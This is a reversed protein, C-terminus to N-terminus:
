VCTLRLIQGQFANAPNDPSEAYRLLRECRLLNYETCPRARHTLFECEVCTGGLQDPSPQDDFYFVRYPLAIEERKGPLDKCAKCLVNAGSHYVIKLKTHARAPAFRLAREMGRRKEDIIGVIYM